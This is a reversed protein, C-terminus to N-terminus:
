IEELHVNMVSISNVTLLNPSGFAKNPKGGFDKV